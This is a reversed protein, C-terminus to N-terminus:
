ARVAGRLRRGVMQHACPHACVTQAGGDGVAGVVVARVLMHFLENWPLDGGDHLARPRFQVAGALVHAVPYMRFVVGACHPRDEGAPADAFRIQDSRVALHAVDGHQAHDQLQHALRFIREVPHAVPGPM